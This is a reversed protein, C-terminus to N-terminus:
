LSRCDGPDQWAGFSFPRAQKILLERQDGLIKLEMDMTFYENRQDPDLLPRFHNVIARMACAASVVEQDSLIAKGDNFNSVSRFTLAPTRPPWQYTFQDSTVGPAPNTVSAEGLQVNFSYQDSRTIDDVNRSIVVANAREEPFAPHILVAMAVQTQDINALQREDFGRDSYLSAWVERLAGEVPYKPDGVAASVSSYLGAGNFGPVDEANSSSRFRVRKSGFQERLWTTFQDLFEPDVSTKVIRDRIAALRQHRVARDSMASTDNLLATLMADVGSRQAHASFYHMPLAFAPHPVSFPLATPCNPRYQSAIAALEALQAAKAGIAPLDALKAQSLNVFDTRNVDLLPKAQESKQSHQSWFAQAEEPSAPNLLYGDAIVEFRVLQNLLPKWDDRQHANPLALNPTGRNQCLVNVHSLPTQFAETVLGGVLPIDNPVDDTVVIVDEGLDATTLQNAPVFTLTGYGVGATLPQLKTNAFPANTGVIPLTGEITLARNTQEDDQPRLAYREPNLVHATAEFFARRMDAPLIEDGLAFEVAYLDAAAHHVFTGLLFRRGTQQFYETVSFDYWGRNFLGNEVPNCRNLTPQGEIVERVFEYHLSWDRWGVLYLQNGAAMDFIFKVSAMGLEGGGAALADFDGLTRLHRDYAGVDRRRLIQCGDNDSGPSAPSCFVFRGPYASTRALAAATPWHAFDVRDAVAGDNSFLTVVGEFNPDQELVALDSPSVPVVAREGPGLPPLNATSIAVGDYALPWPQGPKLPAVNLRYSTIDLVASGANRLEIFGNPPLAIEDIILPSTPMAPHHSPMEFPTFQYDDKLPPPAPPECSAGNSRSPSAYRCVSLPGSGDPFRAFSQNTDLTPIKVQDLVVGCKQLSLLSGSASLRLPLHRTGQRPDDDAWLLLRGGPEIAADPLDALSSDVHLMLGKLRAPEPGINALELWDDANAFEDVANGDNNSSVENIVIKPLPQEACSAAGALGGQHSVAEPTGGCGVPMALM